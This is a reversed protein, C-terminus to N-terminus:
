RKVEGGRRSFEDSKRSKQRTFSYSFAKQYKRKMEVIKYIYKHKEVKKKQHIFKKKNTSM